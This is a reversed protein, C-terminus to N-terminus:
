VYGLSRLRKRIEEQDEESLIKEDLPLEQSPETYQPLQTISLEEAFLDLMPKGDMDFPIPVGMYTLITPAIDM